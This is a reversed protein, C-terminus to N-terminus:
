NTPELGANKKLLDIEDPEPEEVPEQPPPPPTAQAPLQRSRIDSVTQRIFQQQGPTLEQKTVTTQPFTYVDNTAIPYITKPDISSTQEILDMTDTFFFSNQAPIDLMLVGYLNSENGERKIDLYRRICSLTYSTAAKPVAPGGKILADAISGAEVVDDIIENIIAAVENRLRPDEQLIDSLVYFNIGTKATKHRSIIDKNKNFFNLCLQHWAPNPKVERDFFRPGSIKNGSKDATKLEIKVDGNETTVILDGKKAKNIRRSFTSLFLEGKGIGYGHKRIFTDAVAKIVPNNPYGNLIEEFTHARSTDLMVDINVINDNRWMEFFEDRDQRTINAIYLFKIVDDRIANFKPENSILAGILKDIETGRGRSTEPESITSEADRLVDDLQYLVQEGHENDPLNNVEASVQQKLQKVSAQEIISKFHKIPDM